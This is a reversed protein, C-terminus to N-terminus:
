LTKPTMGVQLSTCHHLAVCCEKLHQLVNGHRVVTDHCLARTDLTGTLNEQLCECLQAPFHM